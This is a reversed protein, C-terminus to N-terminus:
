RRYFKESCIYRLFSTLKSVYLISPFKASILYIDQGTNKPDAM